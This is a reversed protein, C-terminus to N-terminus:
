YRIDFSTFIKSLSYTQADVTSVVAGPSGQHCWLLIKDMVNKDAQFVAEVCGNPLNKVYGHVGLEDAAKKTEARYFVGQVKGSIIAKVTFKNQM